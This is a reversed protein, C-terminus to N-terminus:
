SAQPGARGQWGRERDLRDGALWPQADPSAGRRREGGFPGHQQRPQGEFQRSRRPYPPEGPEFYPESFRGPPSCARGASDFYPPPPPRGGRRPPPPSGPPPPPKGAPWSAQPPPPLWRTDELDRPRSDGFRSRQPSLGPRRGDEFGRQQRMSFRRDPPPSNTRDRAPGFRQQRDGRPGRRRDEWEQPELEVAARLQPRERYVGGDGAQQLVPHSHQQTGGAVPAYPQPQREV